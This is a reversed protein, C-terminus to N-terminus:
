LIRPFDVSAKLTSFHLILKFHSGLPLNLVDIIPGIPIKTVKTFLCIPCPQELDPINKPIVKMRGKRTM